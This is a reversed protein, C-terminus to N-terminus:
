PSCQLVPMTAKTVGVERVRIAIQAPAYADFPRPADPEKDKTFNRM